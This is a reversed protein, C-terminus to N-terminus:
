RLKAAIAKSGRSLRCINQWQNITSELKIIDDVGFIKSKNNTYENSTGITLPHRKKCGYTPLFAAHEMGYKLRKHKKLSMTRYNWSAFTHLFLAHRAESM